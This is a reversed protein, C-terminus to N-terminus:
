AASSEATATPGVVASLSEQDGDSGSGFANRTGRCGTVVCTPPICIAHPPALGASSDLEPLEQLANVDSTMM